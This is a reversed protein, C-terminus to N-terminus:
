FIVPDGAFASSIGVYINMQQRRLTEIYSRVLAYTDAGAKSRFGGSVKTKTKIMRLTREALNNDFPVSFDHIFLLHQDKFKTLRPCLKEGERTYRTKKNKVKAMTQIIALRWRQLIEDYQKNYTDIVDSSFCSEGRQIAAKRTNNADVFLGLMEKAYDAYEPENEIIGELYRIIHANCEAHKCLWSYLGKLHDHVLVGRWGDLVGMAKDAENGRKEDCHYLTHKKTTLTHLWQLKGNIKVGTEDKHLVPSLFLKEKISEISQPLKEGLEKCMNVISGEAVSLKGDTLDLILQRIKNLPMAYEVNLMSAIARVSDGANVPNHARPPFTMHHKKGCVTCVGDEDIYEHVSAALSIEVIQKRVPSDAYGVTGGCECVAPRLDESTDPNEFLIPVNGKHGKQGGPKKGSKKRSNSIEKFGNSSPPKSSNSSNKDIIVRLKRNEETLSVVSARLGSVVAKLEDIQASFDDKQKNLADSQKAKLESIERNHRADNEAIVERLRENERLAKEYDGYFIKEYNSAM